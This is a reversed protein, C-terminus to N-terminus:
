AADFILLLESIFSFDCRSGCLTCLYLLSDLLELVIHHRHQLEIKVEPKNKEFWILKKSGTELLYTFTSSFDAEVYLVYIYFAQINLKTIKVEPKNKEFWIM